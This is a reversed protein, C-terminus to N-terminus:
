NAIKHPQSIQSAAKRTPPAQKPAQEPAEEPAEPFAKAILNARRNKNPVPIRAGFPGGDGEEPFFAKYKKLSKATFNNAVYAAEKQKQMKEYRATRATAVPADEVVNPRPLANEVLDLYNDNWVEIALKCQEDLYQRNRNVLDEDTASAEAELPKKFVIREQGQITKKLQAKGYCHFLRVLDGHLVGRIKLGITKPKPYFIRLLKTDDSM